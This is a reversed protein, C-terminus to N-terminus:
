LNLRRARARVAWRERAVGDEVVWVESHLATTPCIHWPVAYVVSGVPFQAAASTEVVLHEENHAVTIAGPVNLLVVRPHPMESAVAKHGLDLCLRHTGPRSVVRCLLVAAQLFELDPLRAHYGADWLVCTGPSCEVGPRRAHIPFTPTGGAVIRPVDIGAAVLQQRLGEVPAYAADCATTREALDSQHLHGDYAHLGGFRLGRASAIAQVLQFAAPGPVVGTRQQGVDLDVFIDIPPQSDDALRALDALAGPDDVLAAFRTAPLTRALAIFRRADPGVPPFAILVDPAGATAAMEAEAITACKFRTIGLEIQRRVLEPLKHTKIHPRLRDPGGAIAIMRRLNEEVRDRLLLLAPSPIDAANALEFGPSPNASSPTSPNM